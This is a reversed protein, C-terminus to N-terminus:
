SGIMGPQEKPQVNGGMATNLLVKNQGQETKTSQNIRTTTRQTNAPKGPGDAARTPLNAPEGGAKVIDDLEAAIGAYEGQKKVYAIVDPRLDPAFQLAPLIDQQWLLRLQQAKEGPSLRQMSSPQLKFDYDELDGGRSEANFVAPIEVNAEANRKMVWVENLPDNWRYWALQQLIEVVFDEITQAMGQVKVSSAAKIMKDQTATDSQAGLGAQVELNGGLWMFLDRLQLFTAFTAPDAGGTKYEAVNGELSNEVTVITGDKGRQVTAADKASRKTAALITKQRRAQESVKFLLENCVSSLDRMNAVPALPMVNNPVSEACAFKYPGTASKPGRWKKRSLEMADNSHGYQVIENTRSLWIVWVDTQPVFHDTERDSRAKGIAEVREDGDVPQKKFNASPQLKKRATKDYDPNDQAWDLPVRIKHGIYFCGDFEIADMDCVFDDLDIRDVVAEGSKYVSDDIEVDSSAAISTCSIGVSFMYDKVIAQLTKGLNMREIDRDVALGLTVADGRYQRKRTTAMVQPNTSILQRTYTDVMMNILAIPVVERQTSESESYFGGTYENIVDYRLERFPKLARFSRKVDESLRQIETKENIDRKKKKKKMRPM